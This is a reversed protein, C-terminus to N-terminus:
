TYAIEHFKLNEQLEEWPSTLVIFLLRYL